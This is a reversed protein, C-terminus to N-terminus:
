TELNQNILLSYNFFVKVFFTAEYSLYFLGNTAGAITQFPMSDPKKVLFHRKCLNM